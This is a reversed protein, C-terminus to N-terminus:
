ERYKEVVYDSMDWAPVNEVSFGAMSEYGSQYIEMMESLGMNELTALYRDWDTDISADGTIFRAKMQDVYAEIGSQLVNLQELTEKDFYVSPYIEDPWYPEYNQEVLRILYVNLDDMAKREFLFFGNTDLTPCESRLIENLEDRNGTTFVWKGEDNWEWAEGERGFRFEMAGEDSFAYDLWRMTAEPYANVNTIAFRGKAVMFNVNRNWLRDGGPGEFPPIMKFDDVRDDGVMGIWNTLTLGLLQDEARGKARLQTGDQTFTEEDLLDEAYLRNFFTIGERYEEQAPTFIVEGDRVMLYHENELVGWSGFLSGFDNMLFSMPLEDARGNGNPDQTKFAKLVDYLEETTEPVDLGLNALWTRNIWMKDRVQVHPNAVLSPLAYINGDPTTIVDKVWSYQELIGKISVTWEDILENLPLLVGQGGYNVEDLPTLGSAMFMDPYDGSALVLNRKEDVSQSPVLMWEIFVNTREELDQFFPMEDHPPYGPGQPAFVRLTIPESTIPYGSEAVEVTTAAAEETAGAAFATGAIVAVAITMCIMKKM